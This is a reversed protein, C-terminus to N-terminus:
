AIIIDILEDLLRNHSPSKKQIKLLKKNKLEIKPGVELHYSGAEQIQKIQDEQEIYNWIKYYRKDFYQLAEIM